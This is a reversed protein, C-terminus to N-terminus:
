KGTMAQAHGDMEALLDILMQLHARMMDHHGAMDGMMDANMMGKGMMGKGADHEKASKQGADHEHEKASKEMAPKHHQDMMDLMKEMRGRVGQAVKGLEAGHEAMQKAREEGPAMGRIKERMARMADLRKRAESMEEKMKEMRVSMKAMKGEMQDQHSAAPAGAAAPQPKHDGHEQKEEAMAFSTQMAICLFLVGSLGIKKM